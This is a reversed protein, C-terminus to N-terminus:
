ECCSVAEWAALWRLGTVIVLRWSVVLLCLLLASMTVSARMIDLAEYCAVFSLLAAVLDVCLVVSLVRYRRVLSRRRPSM